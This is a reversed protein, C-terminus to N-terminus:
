EFTTFLQLLDRVSVNKNCKEIKKVDFITWGRVKKLERRVYMCVYMCVYM